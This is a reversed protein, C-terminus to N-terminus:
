FHHLKSNTCLVFIDLRTTEKPVLKIGYNIKYQQPAKEVEEVEKYSRLLYENELFEDTAYYAGANYDKDVLYEKVIFGRGDRDHLVAYAKRVMKWPESPSATHVMKSFITCRYPTEEGEAFGQCEWTNLDMKHSPWRPGRFIIMEERWCIDFMGSLLNNDLHTMLLSNKEEDHTEHVIQYPLVKTSNGTTDPSFFIFFGTGIKLNEPLYLKNKVPPLEKFSIHTKLLPEKDKQLDILYLGVKTIVLYFEELILEPNGEHLEM